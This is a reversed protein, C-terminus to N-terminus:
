AKLHRKVVKFYERFNKYGVAEFMGISVIHDFMDSQPIDRYDQLRIDTPLDQCRKRALIHQEQSITLGVVEAGYKETAFKAFSGWGCGIDM